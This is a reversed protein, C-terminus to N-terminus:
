QGIIRKKVEDKIVDRVEKDFKLFQRKPLTQGSRGKGKHHLAALHSVSIDSDNSKFKKHAVNKYGVKTETKNSEYMLQNILGGGERLKTDPTRSGRKKKRLITSEALPEGEVQNNIIRDQMLKKLKLGISKMTRSNPMVSRIAQSYTKFTKEAM